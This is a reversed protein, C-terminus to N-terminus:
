RLYKSVGWIIAGAAVLVLAGKLPSPRDPQQFYLDAVSRQWRYKTSNQLHRTGGARGAYEFVSDHTVPIGHQELYSAVRGVGAKESYGSNWGATVLKVYEPNSWDPKLNRSPHKRYGDVIRKLTDTAVKVNTAPDLMDSHSYGTGHRANYSAVVQPVVQLLGYAPLRAESPDLNSERKGLARLYATPISGGHRRFLPDFRTTLM